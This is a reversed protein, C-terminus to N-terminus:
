IWAKKNVINLITTSSVGYEVALIRSSLGEKYKKIIVPIYSENLRANYNKSGKVGTPVRLKNIIAHKNNESYTCWELNEVRNDTKIGNKHNVTPKNNPNPLFATAVIRHILVKNGKGLSGTIYGQKNISNFYKGKIFRTRGNSMKITRDLSRFEGSTSVEYAGEFGDVSKWVKNKM